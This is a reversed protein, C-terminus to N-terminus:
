LFPITAMGRKTQRELFHMPPRPSTCPQHQTLAWCPRGQECAGAIVQGCSVFRSRGRVPLSDDSPAARGLLRLFVAWVIRHCGARRRSEHSARRCLRSPRCVPPSARHGSARSGAFAFDRDTPGTRRASAASQKSLRNNVMIPTADPTGQIRVEPRMFRNSPAEARPVDSARKM